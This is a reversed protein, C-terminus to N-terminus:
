SELAQAAVGLQLDAEPANGSAPDSLRMAETLAAPDRLIRRETLPQLIGRAVEDCRTIGGFINFFIAKVQPDRTIM